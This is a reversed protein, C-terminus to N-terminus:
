LSESGCTVGADEFHACNHINIGNSPCDILRSETGVCQLNDLVIDGTGAGFFAQSPARTATVFLCFRRIIKIFSNWLTKKILKGNGYGLQTCVVDGDTTDWLDDCVTGWANSNCVEVRGEFENDGGVLRVDGQTCM